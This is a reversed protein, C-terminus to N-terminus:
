CGESIFKIMAENAGGEKAITLPNMMFDLPVEKWAIDHSYDTRGKFTLPAIQKIGENLCSIDSESLEDMDPEALSNVVYEDLSFYEKLTGSKLMCYLTYPVPGVKMAKYTDGSILRGYDALHTRDAVYLTKSLTHLDTEGEYNKVIYLAAAILRDKDLIQTM